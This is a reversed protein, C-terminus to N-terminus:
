RNRQNFKDLILTNQAPGSATGAHWENRMSGEAGSTTLHRPKSCWARPRKIAHTTRQCKRRNIPVYTAIKSHPRNESSATLYSPQCCIGPRPAFTMRVGSHVIQGKYRRSMSDVWPIKENPKSGTREPYHGCTLWKSGATADPALLM